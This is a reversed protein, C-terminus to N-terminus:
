VATFVHAMTTVKPAIIDDIGQILKLEINSTNTTTGPQTLAFRYTRNIIAQLTFIVNELAKKVDGDTKTFWALFLAAFLDGTGIFNCNLKDMSIRYLQRNAIGKHVSSVMSYLKNPESSCDMSTIVVTKIGKSHLKDIAVVATKFDTITVESLIRFFDIVITKRVLM